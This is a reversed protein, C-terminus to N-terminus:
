LKLEFAPKAPKTEVYKAVKAFLAPRRTRLEEYAKADFEYKAPVLKLPLDDDAIEEDGRMDEVDVSYNLKFEVTAAVPGGELKVRGREPKEAIRALIREECAIREANAKKEATKARVLDAFLDELTPESM